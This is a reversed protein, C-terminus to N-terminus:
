FRFRLTVGVSRMSGASLPLGYTAANITTGIGTINVHNLVNTADLRFELLRREGLGFGRGFSANLTVSGPGPITNRGANGFYGVPPLVFAATNFYAGGADVPLGTADPRTTGLAGTGANDSQNGAVRPNLPSGTQAQVGGSLTWDELLKNTKTHGALMRSNHGFPSTVV